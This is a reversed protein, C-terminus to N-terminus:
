AHIPFRSCPRIYTVKSGLMGVQLAGERQMLATRRREFALVAAPALSSLPARPLTGAARGVALSAGVGGDGCLPKELVKWADAEGGDGCAERLLIHIEELFSELGGGIEDDQPGASSGEQVSDGLLRQQQQQKYSRAMRWGDAASTRSPPALLKVRDRGGKIGAAAMADERTKTAQKIVAKWAEQIKSERAELVSQAEELM